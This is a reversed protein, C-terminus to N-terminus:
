MESSSIESLAPVIKIENFILIINPSFYDSSPKSRESFPFYGGAKDVSNLMISYDFTFIVYSHIGTLLFIQTPM